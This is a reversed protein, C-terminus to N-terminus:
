NLRLKAEDWSRVVPLLSLLGTIEFLRHVEPAADDPLLLFLPRECKECASLAELLVGVITSDIFSAASLDVVLPAERDIGAALESRLRPAAFADSEGRLTIVSFGPEPAEMRLGNRARRNEFVRFRAIRPRLGHGQRVDARLLPTM